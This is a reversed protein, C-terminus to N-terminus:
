SAVAAFWGSAPFCPAAQEMSLQDQDSSIARYSRNQADTSASRTRLSAQTFISLPLVGSQEEPPGVGGTRRWAGCLDPVMRECLSERARPWMIAPHRPTCMLADPSNTESPSTLRGM